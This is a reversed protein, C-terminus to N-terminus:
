QSQSQDRNVNKCDKSCHNSGYCSYCIHQKKCVPNTCSRYNWYWCITNEKLTAIVTDNRPNANPYQGRPKNKKAASYNTSDAGLHKNIFSQHGYSFADLGEIEALQRVEEDYKILFETAHNRSAAKDSLFRLHDLMGSVVHGAAMASMVLALLASMLVAFTVPKQIGSPLYRKISFKHRKSNSRFEPVGPAPASCSRRPENDDTDDSGTETDTDVAPVKSKVKKVNSSLKAMNDNMKSITAHLANMQDQQIRVIDFTTASPDPNITKAAGDEGEEGLPMALSPKVSSLLRDVRKASPSNFVEDLDDLGKYTNIDTGTRKGCKKGTPPAHKTLCTSCLYKRPSSM